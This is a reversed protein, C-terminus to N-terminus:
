ELTMELEAIGGAPVSVAKANRKDQGNVSGAIRVEHIGPELGTVAASKGHQTAKDTGDLTLNWGDSCKDGNTVRVNIAGKERRAGSAAKAEQIWQERAAEVQERTKKTAQEVQTIASQFDSAWAETEARIVTHVDKLFGQCRDIMGLAQEHTPTGGQWAVRAREWDIWFM